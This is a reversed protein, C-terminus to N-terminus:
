ETQLYSPFDMPAFTVHEIHGYINPYFYPIRAAIFQWGDWRLIVFRSANTEGGEAALL